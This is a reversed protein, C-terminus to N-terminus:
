YTINEIIKKCEESNICNQLIYYIGEKEWSINYREKNETINYIIDQYTYAEVIDTKEINFEGSSPKTKLFCFNVNKEKNINLYEISVYKKTLEYGQLTYEDTPLNLKAIKVGYEKELTKYEKELDKQIEESSKNSIAETGQANRSFYNVFGTRGIVVGALIFTFILATAISVIRKFVFKQYKVKQQKAYYENEKFKEIDPMYDRKFKKWGEKVDFEPINELEKLEDVLSLLHKMQTEDMNLRQLAEIERHIEKVRAEKENIQLQSFNEKRM